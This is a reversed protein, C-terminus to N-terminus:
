QHLWVKYTMMAVKYQIRPEISLCHLAKLLPQSSSRYPSNCVHVWCSSHYSANCVVRALSNQVRQLRNANKSKTGYLVANCYDLRSSVISCALITATDKHILSRIHLLCRIHYNRSQVVNTVHKDFTFQSDITVGTHSSVKNKGDKKQHLTRM